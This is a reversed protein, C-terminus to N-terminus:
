AKLNSLWEGARFVSVGNKEIDYKINHVIQIANTAPLREKFYVLNRDPNSDSLKVEILDTIRDNEIIAFDVEKKEKTRLYNLSVNKGEVDQLYQCHKLLCVAVTNELKIGDDREVAGTDYFYVKPEKLISRAINRHFPRILFIVNLSELIGIYKKVTNVSIQLDQALSSFSLTSGVRTKLMNLLIRVSKLEMIRGFDLIDANVIDSFYERRWRSSDSESDSLFPEPFGGFKNLREVADYPALFGASEKVSIPLLNFLFYRGALSDGAQMHLDLRSSGTILFSQEENKTDFAGKLFTKWKEMKQIEDLVVLNTKIPWEKERIIKADKIDDYNLYISSKFENLIEKALYTKGVQRPGTILVMKKKLDKVVSNYLYRKM